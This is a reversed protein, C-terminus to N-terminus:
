WNLEIKEYTIRVGYWELILKNNTALRIFYIHFLLSGDLLVKGQILLSRLFHGYESNNQDTNKRMRVSYPFIRVLIVGFVSM